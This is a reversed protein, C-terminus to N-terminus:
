TRKHQKSSCLICILDAFCLGEEVQKGIEMDGLILVISNINIKRCICFNIQSYKKRCVAILVYM